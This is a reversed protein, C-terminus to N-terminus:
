SKESDKGGLVEGVDEPMDYLQIMRLIVHMGCIFSPASVVENEKSMRVLQELLGPCHTKLYSLLNDGPQFQFAETGLANGAHLMEWLTM